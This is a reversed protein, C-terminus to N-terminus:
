QVSVTQFIIQNCESRPVSCTKVNTTVLTKKRQVRATLLHLLAEMFHSYFTNNGLDGQFLKVINQQRRLANITELRNECQFEGNARLRFRCNALKEDAFNQCKEIVCGFYQKCLFSGLWDVKQVSEGNAGRWMYTLVYIRNCVEIKLGHGRLAQLLHRAFGRASSFHKETFLPVSNELIKRSIPQGRVVIVDDAIDTRVAHSSRQKGCQAHASQCDNTTTEQYTSLNAM